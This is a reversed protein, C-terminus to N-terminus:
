RAAFGRRGSARRTYLVGAYHALKLMDRLADEPGRANTNARNVYRKLQAIIKEESFSSLPDNPADGYQPLAYNEIHEGVLGAFALWERFRNSRRALGPTSIGIEGGDVGALFENYREVWEEATLRPMEDDDGPRRLRAPRAYAAFADLYLHEQSIFADLTFTKEYAWDHDTM